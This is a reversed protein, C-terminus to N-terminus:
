RKGERREAARRQQRNQPHRTKNQLLDDLMAQAAKVDEEPSGAEVVTVAHGLWTTLGVLSTLDLRITAVEVGPLAVALTAGVRGEEYEEVVVSLVPEDDLNVQFRGPEMTLSATPTTEDSM